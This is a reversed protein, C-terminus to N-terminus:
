GVVYDRGCRVWPYRTEDQCESTRYPKVRVVRYQRRKHVIVHGVEADLLTKNPQAHHCTLSNGDDDLWAILFTASSTTRGEVEFMIAHITPM